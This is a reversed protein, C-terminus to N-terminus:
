SHNVEGKSVAKQVTKFARQLQTRDPVAGQAFDLRGGGKGGMQAVMEKLLKGAHISKTLDQSVNVIVPYTGPGRGIVIVVGSGLRDRFQDSIERLLQRDDVDIDALVLKGEVGDRTFHHAENIIRNMDVTQSKLEKIEKQLSRMESQSKNAWAVIVNSSDSEMFGDWKKHINLYECAEVSQETHKLLYDAAREGTIAEIRRVGASVGGESVIKFIRIMATNPVHTGGCFEMSFDGMQVVRVRDGYREGFLALAGASKAAGPTMVQTDVDVSRSIETNVLNEIQRIENMSLPQRHTFDFRLHEADVLSGAQVVHEGLVKRLASHVLHTASHNNAISRRRSEAVQLQGKTGVRMEGETVEIQHFFVDDQQICDIVEAMGGAFFLRGSDGVQGGSEAYFSSSDFVALGSEGLKISDVTQTGNSLWLIVGSHSMQTYGVFKTPGSDQIVRQGVEKMHATDSPISKTKWSVKAKERARQMHKEFGIEDVRVGSEQAMLRTLDVPFGYTDYLKFVTEGDLTPPGSQPLKNLAQKLLHTGQDLTKLFANSKMGFLQFSSIKKNMWNM